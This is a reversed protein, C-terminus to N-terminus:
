YDMQYANGKIVEYWSFHRFTRACKMWKRRGNLVARIRGEPKIYGNNPFLGDYLGSPFLPLMVMFLERKNAYYTKTTSYSKPANQYLNNLDTVLEIYLNKFDIM